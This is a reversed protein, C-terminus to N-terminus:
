ERLSSCDLPPVRGQLLPFIHPTLLLLSSSAVVRWGEHVVWPVPPYPSFTSSDSTLSQLQVQSFPTSLFHKLRDKNRVMGSEKLHCYILKRWSSGAKGAVTLPLCVGQRLRLDTESRKWSIEERHTLSPSNSPLQTLMQFGSLTLGVCVTITQPSFPADLLKNRSTSTNAVTLACCSHFLTSFWCM